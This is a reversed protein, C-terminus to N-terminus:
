LAIALFLLVVFMVGLLIALVILQKLVEWWILGIRGEALLRDVQEPTRFFMAQNYGVLLAGGIAVTPVTAVLSTASAEPMTDPTARALAESSRSVSRRCRCACVTPMDLSCARMQVWTCRPADSSAIAAAAAASRWSVAWRSAARSM